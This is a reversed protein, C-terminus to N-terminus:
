LFFEYLKKEIDKVKGLYEESDRAVRIAQTKPDKINFRNNTIVVKKNLYRNAFIAIFLLVAFNNQPKINM